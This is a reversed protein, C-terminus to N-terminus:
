RKKSFKKILFVVFFVAAVIFIITKTSMGDSKKEQDVHDLDEAIPETKGDGSQGAIEVPAPKP